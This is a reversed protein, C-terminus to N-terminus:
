KKIDINEIITNFYKKTQRDLGRPGLARPASSWTSQTSLVWHEPHQPGLARPASSGTGQTSLVWNEPHQPGLARPASSLVGTTRQQTSAVRNSSHKAVVKQKDNIKNKKHFYNFPLIM